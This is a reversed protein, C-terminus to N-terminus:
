IGEREVALNFDIMDNGKETPTTGTCKLVIADGRLLSDLGAEQMAMVFGKLNGVGVRKYKTAKPNDPDLSVKREIIKLPIPDKLEITYVPGNETQFTM